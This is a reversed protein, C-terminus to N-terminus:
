GAGVAATLAALSDALREFASSLAERDKAAITAYNPYGDATKLRALEAEIAALDKDIDAALAANTDVMVPKLLQVIKALGALNAEVDDLDTGAYHNESTLLRGQALRTALGAGSGPLVEPTLKLARLRDKLMAVDARLKDAVPALGELSQQQFLGYELRHFGTFAADNERKELYDAVPNIANELDAFRNAVPEIRKYPLRAPEYLSKAQELDGSKIAAVLSDVGAVLANSQQVLFVKYESLPGILERLSPKRTEAATEQSLTVHLTGRPNSLLGCTIAYDGPALRASLTQTFGPAINEREEIVMVGDIIEWEVARDSQNIILFSRKGAEVSIADPECGKNTVVVKFSDAVADTGRRQSAYFFAAGAALMLMAAGAVALGMHPPPAARKAAGEAM